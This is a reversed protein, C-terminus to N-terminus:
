HWPALVLGGGMWIGHPGSHNKPCTCRNNGPGSVGCEPPLLGLLGNCKRCYAGGERREWTTNMPHGEACWNLVPRRDPRFYGMEAECRICEREVYGKGWLKERLLHGNHKCLRRARSLRWEIPLRYRAWRCVAVIPDIVWNMMSTAGDGHWGLMLIYGDDRWWPRNPYSKHSPVATLGFSVKSREIIQDAM